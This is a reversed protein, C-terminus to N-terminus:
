RQWLVGASWEFWPLWSWHAPGSFAAGLGIDRAAGDLGTFESEAPLTLPPAAFTVELPRHEVGSALKFDDLFSFATIRHDKGIAWSASFALMPGDLSLSGSHTQAYGATVGFCAGADHDSESANGTSEAGCAAWIPLSAYRNDMAIEALHEAVFEISEAGIAGRTVLIGPMTLALIKYSRRM